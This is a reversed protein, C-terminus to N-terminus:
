KRVSSARKIIESQLVIHEYERTSNDESELTMEKILLNAVSEGMMRNKLDVSSLPPSVFADFVENAFGVVAVDNPISLGHEKLTNMVTIASYDGSSFVGDPRQPMALIKQAAEEGTAMTICNDFILEPVVEMQADRLADLYGETRQRYSTITQPGALHAIRRCGQKILHMVTEYAVQHNDVQVTSAIPIAPVRDFFLVPIGRDILSQFHAYDTTEAALSVAIGDIRKTIMSRVISKEDEYKENSQSILVSYGAEHAVSEIGGIVSAFFHRDIRPVIIGLVKGKGTRLHTAIPNPHYNRLKALAKVAQKTKESVRPHDQLARSVTSATINLEKALDYITVKGM